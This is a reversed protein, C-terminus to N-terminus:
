KRLYDLGKAIEKIEGISLRYRIRSAILHKIFRRKPLNSRIFAIKKREGIRNSVIKIKMNDCFIDIYAPYGCINFSYVGHADVRTVAVEGYEESVIIFDNM